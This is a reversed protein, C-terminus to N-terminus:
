APERLKESEMDQFGTYSEGLDWRTSAHTERVDARLPFHESQWTSVNFAETGCGPNYGTTNGISGAYGVRLVAMSESFGKKGENIRTNDVMSIISAFSPSPASTVGVYGFHGQCAVIFWDSSGSVDLYASISQSPQM